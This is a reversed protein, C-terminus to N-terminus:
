QLEGDNMFLSRLRLSARRVEATTAKLEGQVESVRKGALYVSRLIERDRKKLRRIYDELRKVEGGEGAWRQAGLWHPPLVVALASGFRWGLEATTMAARRAAGVDEKHVADFFRGQNMRFRLELRLDGTWGVLAPERLSTAIWYSGPGHEAVTDINDEQLRYCGSLLPALAALTLERAGQRM